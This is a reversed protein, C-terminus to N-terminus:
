LHERVYCNGNATAKSNFMFKSYLFVMQKYIHLYAVAVPLGWTLSYRLPVGQRPPQQECNDHVRVCMGVFLLNINLMLCSRIAVTIDPLVKITSYMVATVAIDPLVM